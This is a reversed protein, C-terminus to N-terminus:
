RIYEDKYKVKDIVKFDTAVYNEENLVIEQHRYKEKLKTIAEQEDKAEIVEQYQLTETIEVRYKAM